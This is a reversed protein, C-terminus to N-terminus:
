NTGGSSAAREERLSADMDKWSTNKEKAHKEIYTKALDGVTDADRRERSQTRGSRHRGLVQKRAERVRQRADALSLTPVQRPDVGSIRRGIRYRLSWSKAGSPRRRASAYARRRKTDVVYRATAGPKLSAVTRATLNTIM